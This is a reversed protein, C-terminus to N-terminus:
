SILHILMLVNAWASPSLIPSLGPNNLLYRSVVVDFLLIAVKPMANIRTKAKRPEKASASSVALDTRCSELTVCSRSHTDKCGCSGFKVAASISIHVELMETTKLVM